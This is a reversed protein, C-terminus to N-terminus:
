RGVRGCMKRWSLAEDAPVRALVVAGVAAHVLAPLRLAALEVVLVAEGLQGERLHRPLLLLGGAHVLLASAAQDLELEGAGQVDAVEAALAALRARPALEPGAPVTGLGVM